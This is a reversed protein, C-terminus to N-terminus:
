SSRGFRRMLSRAWDVAAAHANDYAVWGAIAVAALSRARTVLVHARTQLAHTSAYRYRPKGFGLDATAFAFHTIVDELAAHMAVAGASLYRYRPAYRIQHVHWTDGYRSGLIVAVIDDGSKLVYALLLRNAALVRYDRAAGGEILAGDVSLADMAAILEKVNVSRDIRQLELPGTVRELLRYQRALNYRQKASMKALYDPWAAPLPITHCARWGHVIAAAHRRDGHLHAAREHPFAQMSIAACDPFTRLLYAFLQQTVAPHDPLLAVSGLIRIVRPQMRALCVPGLQACLPVTSIRVPIMGVVRGLARHKVVYLEFRDSAASRTDAMFRFFEPTQYIKEPSGGDALLRRWEGTWHPLGFESTICAIDYAAAPDAAIAAGVAGVARGAAPATVAGRALPVPVNGGPRARAAVHRQGAVTEGPAGAWAVRSM